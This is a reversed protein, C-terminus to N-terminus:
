DFNIKFIEASENEDLFRIAEDLVGQAHVYSTTVVAMGISITQLMDQDEVEAVSLNFKRRLSAIIGKVISRKDKLSQSTPAYLKILVSKTVM